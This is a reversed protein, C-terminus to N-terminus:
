NIPTTTDLRLIEINRYEIILDNVKSMNHANGQLYVSGFSELMICNDELIKDSTSAQLKNEELLVELRTFGDDLKNQAVTKVKGIVPDPRFPITVVELNGNNRVYVLESPVISPSSARLHVGLWDKDDSVSVFKYELRLRLNKLSLPIGIQVHQHSITKKDPISYYDADIPNSFDQTTIKSFTDLHKSIIDKLKEKTKYTKVEFHSIDFPLKCPDQSTVILINKNLQIAIGLELMVNANASTVDAIFVDSNAIGSVFIDYLQKNRNRFMEIESAIPNSKTIISGQIIDWSNKLSEIIDKYAEMVLGDWPNAFFITKRTNVLTNM